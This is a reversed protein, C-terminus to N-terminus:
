FLLYAMNLMPNRHREFYEGHAAKRNPGCRTVMIRNSKMAIPQEFAGWSTVGGATSTVVTM